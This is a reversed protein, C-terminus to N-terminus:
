AEEKETDVSVIMEEEDVLEEVDEAHILDYINLISYISIFVGSIPVVSYLYGMTVPLSPSLQQITLFTNQIGGYILITLAFILILSESVIALIKQVKLSFKITMFDVNMHERKGFVYTAGLMTAWAFGYSALEESWVSPAGLLYRTIVQWVILLVLISLIVVNLVRLFKDLLKRLKDM